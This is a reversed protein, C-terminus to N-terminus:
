RPKSRRRLPENNEGQKEYLGEDEGLRLDVVDITLTLGTRTYTYIYDYIFYIYQIHICRYIYLIFSIVVTMASPLLYCGLFTAHVLCFYLINKYRYWMNSSSPITKGSTVFPHINNKCKKTPDGKIPVARRWFLFWTRWNLSVHSLSFDDDDDDDDDDHHIM